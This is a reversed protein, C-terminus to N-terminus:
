HGAGGFNATLALVLAAVGSDSPVIQDPLGFEAAAQATEADVCAVVVEELLRSLDDTDFVHSFENVTAPSTFAVCDIGGGGLLVSLQVLESNNSVARYAAVVDVRAGADELAQALPDRSIAARPLLVNLGRLSDKEGIYTELAAVVVDSSPQDPLLDVHVQSHELRLRTADNIACVRLADLEGVEHGTHQLRRLFFVAANVNAFILWDYGFLNEIAEDLHAHSDTETIELRPWSLVRAGHRTLETALDGNGSPAVLITRGALAQNIPVSEMM